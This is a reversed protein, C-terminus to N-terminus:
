LIIAGDHVGVTADFVVYRACMERVPFAAHPFLVRRRAANQPICRLSLTRDALPGGLARMAISGTGRRRWTGGMGLARQQHRDCGGTAASVGGYPYLPTRWGRSRRWGQVRRQSQVRM